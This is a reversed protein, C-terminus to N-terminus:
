YFNLVLIALEIEQFDYEFVPIFVSNILRGNRPKQKYKGLYTM